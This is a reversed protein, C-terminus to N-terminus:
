ISKTTIPDSSSNATRTTGRQSSQVAVTPSSVNDTSETLIVGINECVEPVVLTEKVHQSTITLARKIVKGTEKSM